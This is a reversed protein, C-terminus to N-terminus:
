GLYITAFSLWSSKFSVTVAVRMSRSSTSSLSPATSSKLDTSSALSRAQAPTLDNDFIPLEIDEDLCQLVVEELKGRGVVFKADPRPRVQAIRHEIQVGATSALKSWRPRAGTSTM